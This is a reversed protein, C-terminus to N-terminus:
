IKSLQKIIFMEQTKNKPKLTTLHIFQYGRFTNLLVKSFKFSASNGQAVIHPTMIGDVEVDFKLFCLAKQFSKIATKVGVSIGFDFLEFKITSDYFLDCNMVVWYNNFCFEKVEEKTLKGEQILDRLYARDLGVLIHFASEFTM